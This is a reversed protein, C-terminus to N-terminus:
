VTTGGEISVASRRAAGSQDLFDEVQEWRLPPPMPWRGDLRRLAPNYRAFVAFDALYAQEDVGAFRGGQRARALITRWREIPALGISHVGHAFLMLNIENYPESRDLYGELASASVETNFKMWFPVAALRLTWWPDM